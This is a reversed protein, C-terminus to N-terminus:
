LVDQRELQLHDLVERQLTASIALEWFEEDVLLSDDVDFVLVISTETEGDERGQIRAGILLMGISRSMVDVEEFLVPEVGDMIWDGDLVDRCDLILKTHRDIDESEEVVFRLTTM